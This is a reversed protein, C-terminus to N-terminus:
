HETGKRPSLSAAAQPPNTAAGELLVVVQRSGYQDICACVEDDPNDDDWTHGCRACQVIQWTRVTM